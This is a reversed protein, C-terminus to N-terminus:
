GTTQSASPGASAQHVGTCHQVALGRGCCIYLGDSKTTQSHPMARTLSCFPISKSFNHDAPPGFYRKPKVM